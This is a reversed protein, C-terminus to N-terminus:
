VRASHRFGQGLVDTGKREGLRPQDGLRSVRRKVSEPREGIRNSELQERVDGCPSGKANTMELLGERVALRPYRLVKTHKPACAEDRGASISVPDVVARVLVSQTGRTIKDVLELSRHRLGM